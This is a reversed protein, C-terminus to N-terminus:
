QAPRPRVDVCVADGAANRCYIRGNALVPSTWCKGGLVQARAIPKFGSASAPAIMLEGHEGLVILKGDAASLGGSGTAPEAWKEAGTALDLCKLSAGADSNGDFGYLRGDLLVCSNFQNRMSKNRWIEEPAGAGMKFLAAGKDYGTSVFLLDDKVVPDSANVGFETMWRIQWSEVGTRANVARYARGSALIAQWEGGRQVLLPTTYGADKNASQWLTKGTAKDLALGAEGANLLIENEFVVPSSAFGWTPVRTNFEQHINKSWVVKGTAAEFCFADGRRSFTYVRGGEVTPTAATGGEFFKDGLDAPYSHRWLIKGTDSDLCYITDTNNENGATFVKGGAVAFSSFGTGVRAEWAIPPGSEPWRDLWGSESSVGDRNPGHWNPWDNARALGGLCLLGLVLNTRFSM